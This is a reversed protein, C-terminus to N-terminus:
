GKVAGAVADIVHRQAVVFVIVIPALAIVSGATLLTWQTSTQSVFAYVGVSLTRLGPDGLTFVLPTLFDNWSSIFAFLGLTALMPRAMPLMIRWYVQHFSAGDVRAAEEVEAGVTSFYGVFLITNFVMGQATQVLVVAWLTDTLGLHHVLDYVPVITYGRPLFFTVVMVALVFRRGPFDTRALAYGAM